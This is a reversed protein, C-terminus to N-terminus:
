AYEIRKIIEDFRKAMEEKNMQRPRFQYTNVDADLYPEKKTNIIEDKLEEIAHPKLYANAEEFEPLLGLLEYHSKGHLEGNTITWNNWYKRAWKEMNTSDFSYWLKVASENKDFHIGGFPIRDLEIKNKLSSTLFEEGESIIEAINKDIIEFQNQNGIAVSVLTGKPEDWADKEYDPIGEKISQYYANIDADYDKLYKVVSDYGSQFREVKWTPWGARFMELFLDIKVIGLGNEHTEYCIDLFIEKTDNNIIIRSFPNDGKFEGIIQNEIIRRAESEGWIMDCKFTYDGRYHNRFQVKDNRIEIYDSYDPM